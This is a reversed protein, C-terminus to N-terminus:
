CREESSVGQRNAQLRPSATGKARMNRKARAASRGPSKPTQRNSPFDRCGPIHFQKQDLQQHCLAELIEAIEGCLHPRVTVGRCELAELLPRTVAGCLLLDLKLGALMAALPEIAQTEIPIEM